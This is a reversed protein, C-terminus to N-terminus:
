KKGKNGKDHVTYTINGKKNVNGRNEDQDKNNQTSMNRRGEM